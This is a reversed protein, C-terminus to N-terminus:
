SARRGQPRGGHWLILAASWRGQPRPAAIHPLANM